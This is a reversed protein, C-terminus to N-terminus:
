EIHTHEETQHGSRSRAATVVQVEAAGHEYLLRTCAALSAGTTVVDDVLLIRRGRCKDGHIEYSRDAAEIREKMSLEKQVTNGKRTIISKYECGLQAALAKALKQAQEWLLTDM